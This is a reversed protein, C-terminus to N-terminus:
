PCGPIKEMCGKQISVNVLKNNKIIHSVFRQPVLSFNGEANM